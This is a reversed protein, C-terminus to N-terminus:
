KQQKKKKKRNKKLLIETPAVQQYMSLAVTRYRKPEGKEGSPDTTTQPRKRLMMTVKTGGASATLLVNFHSEDSGM